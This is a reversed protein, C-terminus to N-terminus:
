AGVAKRCVIHHWPQYFTGRFCMREGGDTKITRSNTSGPEAALDVSMQFPIIQISTFGAAALAKRASAESRIYLQIGRPHQESTETIALEQDCPNIYDWAIFAGGPKLTDAIRKAAVAYEEPSFFMGIASAIAVDFGRADLKLIDECRLDIGALEEDARVTALSIESLDIAALQAAPFRHRIHKLLVGHGCGLEIISAPRDGIVSSVLELIRRDSDRLRDAHKAYYAREKAMYADDGSYDKYSRSPM